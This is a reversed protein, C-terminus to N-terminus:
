ASCLAERIAKVWEGLRDGTVDATCQLTVDGIHVVLSPSPARPKLPVFASPQKVQTAVANQQASMKRLRHCWHYFTQTKIRHSRCFDTASLGSAKWKRHRQEWVARSERKRTTHNSKM